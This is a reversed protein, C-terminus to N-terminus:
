SRLCGRALPANLHARAEEGPEEHDRPQQEEHREREERHVLGLERDTGTEAGDDVGAVLRAQVELPGPVPDGLEIAADQGHGVRTLGEEGVIAAAEDDVEVHLPADLVRRGVVVGCGAAFCESPLAQRLDDLVADLAHDRLARQLLDDRGLAGRDGVLHEARRAAVGLPEADIEDVHAHLADIQGILDRRADVLASPWCSLAVM